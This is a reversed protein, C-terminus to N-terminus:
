SNDTTSQSSISNFAERLLAYDTIDNATPIRKGCKIVALGHSLRDKRGSAARVFQRTSVIEAAAAAELDGLSMM